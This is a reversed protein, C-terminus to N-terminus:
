EVPNMNDFAKQELIQREKELIDSVLKEMSGKQYVDIFTYSHDSHRVSISDGDVQVHQGAAFMSQVFEGVKDSTIYHRMNNHTLIQRLFVWERSRPLPSLVFLRPSDGALRAANPIAGFFEEPKYELGLNYVLRM